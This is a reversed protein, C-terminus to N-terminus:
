NNLLYMNNVGLNEFYISGGVLSANNSSFQSNQVIATVGRLNLCTGARAM